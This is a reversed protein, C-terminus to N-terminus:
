RISQPSGHVCTECSIKGIRKLNSCNGISSPITGTLQNGYLELNELATIDGIEEPIQGSLQSRSWMLEKLNTLRGVKTSLTGTFPNMSLHLKEMNTMEWFEEPITGTFRSGAINFIKMNSLLGFESPITGVMNPNAGLDLYKLRSLRSLESPLTGHLFQRRNAILIELDTLLNLEAPLGHCDKVPGQKREGNSCMSADSLDIKAVTGDVCTIGNLDCHDSHPDGWKQFQAGWNHGLTYTWLLRLIEMESLQGDGDLDGHVFEVGPCEMRGLIRNLPPDHEEDEDSAPCPRCASEMTAAGNPHFTGAPCLIADCGFQRFLISRSM